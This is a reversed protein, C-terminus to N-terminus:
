KPPEVAEATNKEDGLSVNNKSIEQNKSGPPDKIIMKKKWERDPDGIGESYAFSERNKENDIKLNNEDSSDKM